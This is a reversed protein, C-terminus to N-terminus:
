IYLLGVSAALLLGMSFNFARLRKPSTQLKGLALGFLCWVASVPLVFVAFVLAILGSELFMNGGVTTYTTLASLGMVWAKPNLWQFLAAQFFTMPSGVRKGDSLEGAMAIKWAFYLIFATGVWKLATHLNPYLQFVQSFGLGIALLMVPFGFQIGFIHPITARLGFNAGSAALMLTNPGPTISAALAFAFLPLFFQFM